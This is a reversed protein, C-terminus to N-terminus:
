PLESASDDQQPTDPQRAADGTTHQEADVPLTIVRDDDALPFNPLGLQSGAGTTLGGLMDGRGSEGDVERRDARADSLNM